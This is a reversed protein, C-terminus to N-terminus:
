STPILYKDSPANPNLPVDSDVRLDSPPPLANVCRVAVALFEMFSVSAVRLMRWDEAAFVVLLTTGELSLSKHVREPQLEEDVVLSDFIARAYRADKLPVRLTRGAVGNPLARM